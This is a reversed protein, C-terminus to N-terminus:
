HAGSTFCKDCLYMKRGVEKCVMCRHCKGVIPTMGCDDCSTGFHKRVKDMKVFEKSTESFEKKLEEASGFEKRCLPCKIIDLHMSKTQHYILIKMCKVHLNNGCSLKCYTTPASEDRLDEQCIPCIDGDEIPRRSVCGPPVSQKEDEKAIHEKEPLSGQKKKPRLQLLETVEREVLSLQWLVESEQPVRFIKVMVWIKVLKKPAERKADEVVSEISTKKAAGLSDILVNAEEGELTEGKADGRDSRSNRTAVTSNSGSDGERIIFSLPGNEQVVYMHARSAQQIRRKILDPCARRLPLVRSM